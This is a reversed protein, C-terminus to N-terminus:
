RLRMRREEEGRERPLVRFLISNTEEHPVAIVERGTKRELFVQLTEVTHTADLWQMRYIYTDRGIREFRPLDRQEDTSSPARRRGRVAGSIEMAPDPPPADAEPSACGCPALGGLAGAVLVIVITARM